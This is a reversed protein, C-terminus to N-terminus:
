LSSWLWLRRGRERAERALASLGSLTEYADVSVLDLRLEATAAWRKAVERLDDASAVADRVADPVAAVGVEGNETERSPETQEILDDYTGAGLIEGLTAINVDSVFNAEVAAFRGDPGDEVLTQDIEDERAGFVEVLVDDGNGRQV